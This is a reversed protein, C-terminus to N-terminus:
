LDLAVDLSRPVHFSVCRPALEVHLQLLLHFLGSFIDSAAFLLDDTRQELHVLVASMAAGCVGKQPFLPGHSAGLALCGYPWVGRLDRPGRLAGRSLVHFRAAAHLARLLVLEGRQACLEL